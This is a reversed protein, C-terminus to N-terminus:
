SLPLVPSFIIKSMSTELFFWFHCSSLVVVLFDRRLFLLVLWPMSAPFSLLRVASLAFAIIVYQIHLVSDGRVWVLHDYIHVVAALCPLTEVAFQCKDDFLKIFLYSILPNKAQCFVANKTLVDNLTSYLLCDSSSCCWLNAMSVAREQLSLFDHLVANIRGEKLHAACKMELYYRPPLKVAYIACAIIKHHGVSPYTLSRRRLPGLICFHSVSFM